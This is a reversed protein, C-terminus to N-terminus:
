GAVCVATELENDDCRLDWYRVTKDDSTSIVRQMEPLWLCCRLSSTHGSLVDPEVHLCYM